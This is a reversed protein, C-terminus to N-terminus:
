ATNPLHRISIIEWGDKFGLWENEGMWKIRVRWENGLGLGVEWKGNDLCVGVTYWICAHWFGIVISAYHWQITWIFTIYTYNLTQYCPTGSSNSSVHCKSVCPMGTAWACQWLGDCETKTFAPHSWWCTWYCGADGREKSSRYSWFPCWWSLYSIGHVLRYIYFGQIFSFLSFKNGTTLPFIILYFHM